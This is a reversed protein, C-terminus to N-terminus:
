HEHVKLGSCFLLHRYLPQFLDNYDEDLIMCLMLANYSRILSMACLAQFHQYPM